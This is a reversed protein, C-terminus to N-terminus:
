VLLVTELIGLFPLNKAILNMIWYSTLVTYYIDKLYMDIHM